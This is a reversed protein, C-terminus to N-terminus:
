SAPEIPVGLSEIASFLRDADWTDDMDDLLASAEEVELGAVREGDSIRIEYWTFTVPGAGPATSEPSRAHVEMEATIARGGSAGSAQSGPTESTSEGGAGAARSMREEIAAALRKAKGEFM